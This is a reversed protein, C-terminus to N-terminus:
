QDEEDPEGPYLKEFAKSIAYDVSTCSRGEAVLDGNFFVEVDFDGRSPDDVTVTYVKKVEIGEAWAGSM